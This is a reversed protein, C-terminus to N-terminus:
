RTYDGLKAKEGCLKEMAVLVSAGAGCAGRRMVSGANSGLMTGRIDRM